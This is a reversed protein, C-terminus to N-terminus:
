LLGTYVVLFRKHFCIRILFVFLKLVSEDALYMTGGILIIQLWKFFFLSFFVLLFM